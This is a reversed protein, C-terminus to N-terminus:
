TLSPTLTERLSELALRYRSAATGQPIELTAAVEAFTLGGWFKLTLVDRQEPPLRRLEHALMEAAERDSGAPSFLESSEQERVVRRDNSRGLDIARRRITAFVLPADPRGGARQWSEVLSEQLVDEADHECRTQQRAFLLFRAANEALWDNWDQTPSAM